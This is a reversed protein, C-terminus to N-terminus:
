NTSFQNSSNSKKSFITHIISYPLDSITLSHGDFTIPGTENSPAKQQNISATSPLFSSHQFHLLSILGDDLPENDQLLTRETAAMM